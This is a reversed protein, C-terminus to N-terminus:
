VCPQEWDIHYVYKLLSWGYKLNFEIIINVKNLKSAIDFYRISSSLKFDSYNMYKRNIKHQAEKEIIKDVKENLIDM